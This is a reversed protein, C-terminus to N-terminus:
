RAPAPPSTTLAEPPLLGAADLTKRALMLEASLGSHADCMVRLKRRLEEADALLAKREDLLGLVLGQIRSHGTMPEYAWANLEAIEQETMALSDVM